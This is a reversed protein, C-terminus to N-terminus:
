SNGLADKVKQAKAEVKAAMSQRHQQLAEALNPDSVAAIQIALLAANVAGDIGVTAVPIGPPM